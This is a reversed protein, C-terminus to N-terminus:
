YAQKMLRWYYIANLFLSIGLGFVWNAPSTVMVLILPIFVILCYILAKLTDMIFLTPKNGSLSYLWILFGLRWLTNVIALIIITNMLDGSGVGIYLATARALFLSLHFVMGQKQKELVATITTLPSSVFVFYVWVSLWRAFDGAQKWDLGFILEFLNPGLILLLILPPMGIFALKSHFNRVLQAFTGNRLSEAADAYFVQGVASGMVTAPLALVRNTLAYMGAAAPGFFPALILPPLEHASVRFIGAPTSFKPFRNYRIAVKLIGKWSCKNFDPRSLSTVGIGQGAVQGIILSIAGFSFASLQITLTAISQRIKTAGIRGFHKKRVNWQNLILYAGGVVLGFPLLWIYNALVPVSLFNCILEGYFFSLLGILMTTFILLLFSLAVLNIADEDSEPLPIAIDYRMTSFIVIISYLSIFVALVGFYEPAYIRTLIPAALVLMLQAFATGGVIISANKVFKNKPILKRFKAKIM